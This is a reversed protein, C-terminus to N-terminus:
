LSCYRIVTSRPGVSQQELMVVVDMVAHPVCVRTCAMSNSITSPGAGCITTRTGTEGHCTTIVVTMRMTNMVVMMRMTNTVVTVVLHCGVPRVGASVRWWSDM